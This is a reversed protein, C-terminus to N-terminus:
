KCDVTVPVTGTNTIKVTGSIDGISDGRSFFPQKTLAVKAPGMTGMVEIGTKGHDTANISRHDDNPGLTIPVTTYNSSKWVVLNATGRDNTTYGFKDKFEQATKVVSIDISNADKCSASQGTNIQGAFASVSLSAIFIATLLLIKKM